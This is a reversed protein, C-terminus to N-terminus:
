AFFHRYRGQANWATRGCRNRQRQEPLSRACAVMRYFAPRRTRLEVLVANRLALEVREESQELSGLRVLTSTRSTSLSYSGYNKFDGKKPKFKKTRCSQLLECWAVCINRCRM